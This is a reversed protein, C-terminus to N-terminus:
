LRRKGTSLTTASTAFNESAGSTVALVCNILMLLALSAYVDLLAKLLTKALNYEIRQTAGDLSPRARRSATRRLFKFYLRKSQGRARFAWKKRGTSYPVISPRLSAQRAADDELLLMQCATPSFMLTQVNWGEKHLAILDRLVVSIADQDHRLLLSGEHTVFAFLRRSVEGRQWVGLNILLVDSNGYPAGVHGEINASRSETVGDAWHADEVAGLATSTLDGGTLERIAGLGVNM